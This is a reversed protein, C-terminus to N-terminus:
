FDYRGRERSLLEAASLLKLPKKPAFEDLDDLLRQAVKTVRAKPTGHVFDPAYVSVINQLRKVMDLADAMQERTPNNTIKQM